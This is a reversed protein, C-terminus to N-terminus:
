RVVAGQQVLLKMVHAIVEDVEEKTLTKHEDQIVLRLTVSRQDKWEPRSFFDVLVVQRILMNCASIDHRLNDVTRSLPV